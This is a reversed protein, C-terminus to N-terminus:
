RKSLVTATMKVLDFEVTIYESCTVWKSLDHLIQEKFGEMDDCQSDLSEVMDNIPRDLCDPTKFSVTIKVLKAGM